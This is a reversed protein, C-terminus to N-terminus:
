LKTMDTASTVVLARGLAEKNAHMLHLSLELSILSNLSNDDLHYTVTDTRDVPTTAGPSEPHEVPEADDLLSQRHPKNKNGFGLTKTLAMPAFMVAKMANM